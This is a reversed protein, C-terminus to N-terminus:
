VAYGGAELWAREAATDSRGLAANRYPFRGFRRIVDRHAIAHPLNDAGTLPMRTLMLRLCRDQDAQTESHMLPLYFFQRAPEEVKLDHGLAMARKAVRLGRTDSAFAGAEGRWINRPFQDLLVILALSTRPSLIWKELGGGRAALAADTFRAAIEADLADDAAYWRAPGVTELWFDLVEEPTTMITEMGLRNLAKNKPAESLLADM